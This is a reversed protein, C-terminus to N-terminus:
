IAKSHPLAAAPELVKLALNRQIRRNKQLGSALSAQRVELGVYTSFAGQELTQNFWPQCRKWLPQNWKLYM